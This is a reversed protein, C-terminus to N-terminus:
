CNCKIYDFTHVPVGLITPLLRSSIIHATMYLSVITFFSAMINTPSMEFKDDEDEDAINDKSKMLIGNSTLGPIKTGIFDYIVALIIAILNGMTIISVANSLFITADNGTIESYVQSMPIAGAAIGGGLMPCVYNTLITMPTKGFLSGIVIGFISSGIICAIITPIYLGLEKFIQKRKIALISGVVIVSVYFNLFNYGSMFGNANEMLTTPLLDYGSLICMTILCFTAGGGLYKNWVPLRSGIEGLLIGFTFIVAVAGVLQVPVNNWVFGSM